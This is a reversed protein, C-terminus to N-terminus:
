AFLVLPESAGVYGVFCAATVRAGSSVAAVGHIVAADFMVLDGQGPLISFAPTGLRERDLGYDPRRIRQYDAESIRAWFEIEGGCGTEPLQLYVNTGIRRQINLHGLVSTETQDIHPNAHGGAPWRRLIGPLMPRELRADRAVHAGHPWYEDLLLRLRDTPSLLGAFIDDRIAMTTASAATLYRRHNIDSEAAEGVSTGVSQLDSTLTYSAKNCADTIAPLAQECLEQRYFRRHWIVDVEGIAIDRLSDPSLADGVRLGVPEPETQQNAYM